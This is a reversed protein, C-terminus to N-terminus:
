NATPCPISGQSEDQRHGVMIHHIADAIRNHTNVTLEYRQLYRFIRLMRGPEMVEYRYWSRGTAESTVQTLYKHAVSLETGPRIFIPKM